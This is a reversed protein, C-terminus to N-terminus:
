FLDVLQQGRATRTYVVKGAVRGHQALGARVLAKLHSHVTSVALGVEMGLHRLSRPGEMGRLVAARGGGLTEALPDAPDPGTAQYLAGTGPAAYAITLHAPDDLGCMIGDRGCAMPLLVVTREELEATTLTTLATPLRLAGDEWRIRPHVDALAAEQGGTALLRGIRLVEVELIPLMRPWQPAVVQHWWADLAVLYDALAAEPDDLWRAVAPSPSRGGLMQRLDDGIAKASAEAVRALAPEWRTEGGSPLPLLDDAMIREPAAFIGLADLDIGRARQLAEDVWAEDVGRRWGGVIEFLSAVASHMPSVFCRVSATGVEPCLVTAAPDPPM